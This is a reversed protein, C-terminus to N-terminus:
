LNIIWDIKDGLNGVAEFLWGFTWSTWSQGEESGGVFGLDDWFSGKQLGWSLGEPHWRDFVDSRLNLIGNM